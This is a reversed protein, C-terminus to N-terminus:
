WLHLWTTLFSGGAYHAESLSPSRRARMVAPQLDIALSAIRTKDDCLGRCPPRALGSGTESFAVQGCLDALIFLSGLIVNASPAITSAVFYGGSHKESGRSRRLHLCRHKRRRASKM